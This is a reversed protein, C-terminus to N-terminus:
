TKSREPWSAPRDTWEIDTMDTKIKAAEAALSVTWISEAPLSWEVGNWWRLTDPNRRRSAPWWGISPPPGKHWTTM